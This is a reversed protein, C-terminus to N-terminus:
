EAKTEDDSDKEPYDEFIEEESEDSESVEDMWPQRQSMAPLALCVTLRTNYNNHSDLLKKTEDLEEPSQNAHTKLATALNSCGNVPDAICSAAESYFTDATVKRQQPSLDKLFFTLTELGFITNVVEFKNPDISPFLPAFLCDKDCPKNQFKCAECQNRNM